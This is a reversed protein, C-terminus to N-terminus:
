SARGIMRTVAEYVRRGFPREDHWLVHEVDRRARALLADDGALALLRATDVVVAAKDACHIAWRGFAIPSLHVYTRVTQWKVEAHDADDYGLAMCPRSCLAGELLMTSYPSMVGDVARLLLPMDAVPVSGEGAPPVVRVHRLRGVDLPREGRRATRRPHPKYLVTVDPPLEGSAIAADLRAIVSHEEFQPGAGAFLLLRGAAPLSLQRRAAARDPLPGFYVELRPSGVPTLASHPFGHLLRAVYYGQMGWVGVADPREVLPKYNINDWNQTVALVPVRRARAYRMLDEYLPEKFGTLSVVADYRDTILTTLPNTAALYRRLLPALIARGVANDVLPFFRRVYPRLGQWLNPDQLREPYHLRTFPLLHLQYLFLWARERRADRPWRYVRRFPGPLGAVPEAHIVDVDASEVLADLAGSHLVAKGATENFLELLVRPRM